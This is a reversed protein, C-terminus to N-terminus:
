PRLQEGDTAELRKQLRQVQTDPRIYELASVLKFIVEFDQESAPIM